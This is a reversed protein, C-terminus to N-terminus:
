GVGFSVCGSQPVRGQTMMVGRSRTFTYKKPLRLLTRPGIYYNKCVTEARLFLM